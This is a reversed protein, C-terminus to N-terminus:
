ESTVDMQKAAAAFRIALAEHGAPSNLSAADARLIFRRTVLRLLGDPNNLAERQASEGSISPAAVPL